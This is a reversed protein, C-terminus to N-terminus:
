RSRRRPDPEPNVGDLLGAINFSSEYKIGTELKRVADAQKDQSLKVVADDLKVQLSM